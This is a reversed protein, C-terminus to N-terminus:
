PQRSRFLGIPKVPEALPAVSRTLAKYSSTFFTDFFGLAIIPRGLRVPCKGEERQFGLLCSWRGPSDSLAIAM